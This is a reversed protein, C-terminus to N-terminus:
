RTNAEDRDFVFDSPWPARYRRMTQLRELKGPSRKVTVMPQDVGNRAIAQLQLEDGEAIGLERVLAVPLRVALSNGWKAVQMVIEMTQYVHFITYQLLPMLMEDSLREAPLFCASLSEM